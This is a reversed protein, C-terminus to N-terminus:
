RVIERYEYLQLDENQMEIRGVFEFDRFRIPITEDLSKTDFQAYFNTAVMPLAFRIIELPREDPSEILKTCGCATVLLYKM